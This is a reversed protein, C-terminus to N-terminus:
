SNKLGEIIELWREASQGYFVPTYLCRQRWSETGEGIVYWSGETKIIDLHPYKKKLLRRVQNSTTKM